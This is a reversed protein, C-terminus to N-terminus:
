QKRSRRQSASRFSKRCLVNKCFWVLGIQEGPWNCKPCNKYARGAKIKELREKAAKRVLPSSDVLYEPLEEIDTIQGIMDEKELSKTDLDLDLTEEM